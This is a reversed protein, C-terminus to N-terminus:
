DASSDSAGVSSAPSNKAAAEVYEQQSGAEEEIWAQLAGGLTRRVVRKTGDELELEQSAYPENEGLLEPAQLLAVANELTYDLPNGAEDELGRWSDIFTAIRECNSRLLQALSKQDADEGGFVKEAIAEVDVKGSKGLLMQRTKAKALAAYFKQVFPAEAQLKEAHAVVAPHGARRIGFFIGPGFPCEVERVDRVIGFRRQLNTKM